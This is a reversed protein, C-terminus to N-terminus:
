HQTKQKTALYDREYDRIYQLVEQTTGNKVLAFVDDVCTIWLWLRAIWEKWFTNGICHVLRGSANRPITSSEDSRRSLPGPNLVPERANVNVFATVSNESSWVNHKHIRNFKTMCFVNFCNTNLTQILKFKSRRILWPPM